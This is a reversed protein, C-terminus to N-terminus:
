GQIILFYHEAIINAGNVVMRDGDSTTITYTRIPDDSEQLDMELKFRRFEYNYEKESLFRGITHVSYSSLGGEWDDGKVNNRFQVITDMDRSNFRGFVYLRGGTALWSLWKQLPERFDEFISLVGSAIIIDFSADPIYKLADSVEFSCNNLDHNQRAMEILESSIDFGAYNAAPFQKNM